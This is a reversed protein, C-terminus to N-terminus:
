ITENKERMQLFTQKDDLYRKLKSYPNPETQLLSLFDKAFHEFADLDGQKFECEVEYFPTKSYLSGHDFSIEVDFKQNELYFAKRNFSLHAICFFEQGQVLSLFDQLFLREEQALDRKLVDLFYSTQFLSAPLESVNNQFYPLELERREEFFSQKKITQKLTFFMEDNQKRFRLAMGAKKLTEEQTDFYLNEMFFNEKRKLLFNWTLFFNEREVKSLLQDFKEKELVIKLEREM